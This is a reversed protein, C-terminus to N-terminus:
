ALFNLVELLFKLFMNMRMNEEKLVIGSIYEDVNKVIREVM